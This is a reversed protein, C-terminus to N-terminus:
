CEANGRLQWVHNYIGWKPKYKLLPKRISTLLTLIIWLFVPGSRNLLTTNGANDSETGPGDNTCQESDLIWLAHAYTSKTFYITALCSIRDSHWKPPSLSWDLSPDILHPPSRQIPLPLKPHLNPAVWQLWHYETRSLHHCAKGLHSQPPNTSSHRHFTCHTKCCITTILQYNLCATTHSVASAGTCRLVSWVWYM